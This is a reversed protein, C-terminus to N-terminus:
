FGKKELFVMGDVYLTLIVFVGGESDICVYPDSKLTKFGIETLHKEIAGLWNPPNQRLGHLSKLLRM